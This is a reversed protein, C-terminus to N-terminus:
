TNIFCANIDDGAQGPSGSNKPFSGFIITTAPVLGAVVRSPVKLFRLVQFHSSQVRIELVTVHGHVTKGFVLDEKSTM